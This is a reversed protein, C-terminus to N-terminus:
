TCHPSSGFPVDIWDEMTSSSPRLKMSGAIGKPAIENTMLFVCEKERSRVGSEGLDQGSSDIVKCKGDGTYMRMM